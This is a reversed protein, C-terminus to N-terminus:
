ARRQSLTRKRRPPKSLVLPVPTRQHAKAFNEASVNHWEPEIANLDIDAAHAWRQKGPAGVGFMGVMHAGSSTYLRELILLRSRSVEFVYAWEMGCDSNQDVPMVQESREGHCYCQPQRSVTHAYEYAHGLFNKGSPAVGDDPGAGAPWELHDVYEKGCHKCPRKEGFGPELTFDADNITSWGAPHSDILFGLMKELDQQFFGHYLRWLTAGLGTPYGDWHHYVGKFTEPGTLRAICSRTSM